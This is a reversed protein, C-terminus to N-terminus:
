AQNQHRIGTVIISIDRFLINKVLYLCARILTFIQMYNVHGISTVIISIYGLPPHKKMSGFDSIDTYSDAHM